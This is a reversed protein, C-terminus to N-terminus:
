LNIKFNLTQTELLVGSPGTIEQVEKETMDLGIRDALTKIKGETPPHVAPNKYASEM